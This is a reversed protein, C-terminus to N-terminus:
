RSGKKNKSKTKKTPSSTDIPSSNIKNEKMEGVKSSTSSEEAPEASGCLWGLLLYIAISGNVITPVIIWFILREGVVKRGHKPGFYKVLVETMLWNDKYNTNMYNYTNIWADTNYIDNKAYELYMSLESQPAKVKQGCYQCYADNTHDSMFTTLKHWSLTGTKAPYARGNDFMILAPTTRGFDLRIDYSEFVKESFRHDMFGFNFSDSYYKALCGINRLMNDTPQTM